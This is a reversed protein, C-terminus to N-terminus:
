AQPVFRGGSQRGTQSPRGLVPLPRTGHRPPRRENGRRRRRPSWSSAGAGPVLAVSRRRGRGRPHGGRVRRRSARPRFPLHSPLAACLTRHDPRTPVAVGNLLVATLLKHLRYVVASTITSIMTYTRKTNIGLASSSYHQVQAVQPPATHAGVRSLFRLCSM